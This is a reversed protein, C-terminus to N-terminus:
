ATKARKNADPKPPNSVCYIACTNALRATVNDAFKESLFSAGAEPDQNLRVNNLVDLTVDQYVVFIKYGDSGEPVKKLRGISTEPLGNLCTYGVVDLRPPRPPLPKREKSGDDAVYNIPQNPTVFYREDDIGVEDIFNKTVQVGVASVASAIDYINNLGDNCWGNECKPQVTIAEVTKHSEWDSTFHVCPMYPTLEKVLMWVRFHDYVGLMNILQCKRCSDLFQKIVVSKGESTKLLTPTFDSGDVGRTAFAFSSVDIAISGLSKSAIDEMKLGIPEPNEETPTTQLDKDAAIALTTECFTRVNNAVFPNTNDTLDCVDPCTAVGVNFSVGTASRDTLAATAPDMPFQVLPYVHSRLMSSTPFARLLNLSQDIGTTLASLAETWSEKAKESFLPEEWPQGSGVVSDGHNDLVKQMWASFHIKDATTEDAIHDPRFGVHDCVVSVVQSHVGNSTYAFADFIKSSRERPHSPAKQFHEGYDISKCSLYAAHRAPYKETAETYHYGAVVSKLTLTTGVPIDSEKLEAENPGNKMGKVDVVVVGDIRVAVCPNSSYVHPLAVKEGGSKSKDLKKSAMQYVAGSPLRVTSVSDEPVTVSNVVLGVKFSSWLGSGRSVSVVTGTVHPLTLDVLDSHAVKAERKAKRASGIASAALDVSSADTQGWGIKVDGDADRKTAVLNKFYDSM